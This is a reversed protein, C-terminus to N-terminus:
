KNGQVLYWDVWAEMQKVSNPRLLIERKEDLLFLTARDSGCLDCADACVVGFLREIEDVHTMEAAMDILKMTKEQAKQLSEAKVAM